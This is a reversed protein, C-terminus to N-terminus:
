DGIFGPLHRADAARALRLARELAREYTRRVSSVGIRERFHQAWQFEAYPAVSKEFGGEERVSWALDRFPDPRLAHLAAPLESLCVKRGAEDFPHVWGTEAMVRWFSPRRLASLDGVVRVFAEEVDSQWLALSLHHHDIIYFADGPGLVAPIPRKELFARFKKPKAFRTEVKERKAAVAKMGVAVQTPRILDLPVLIPM